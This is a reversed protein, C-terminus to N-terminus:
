DKFFRHVLLVIIVKLENVLESECDDYVERLITNIPNIIKNNFITM